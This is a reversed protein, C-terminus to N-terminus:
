LTETPTTGRRLRATQPPPALPRTPHRRVTRQGRQGNIRFRHSLLAADQRLFCNPFPNNKIREATSATVPRRGKMRFAAIDDDIETLFRHKAAAKETAVDLTDDAEKAAIATAVDLSIKPRATHPRTQRESLRECPTDNSPRPGLSPSSAANRSNQGKEEQFTAGENENREWRAAKSRSDREAMM